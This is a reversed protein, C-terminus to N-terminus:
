LTNDSWNMPYARAALAAGVLGGQADPQGIVIRDRFFTPNRSSIQYYGMKNLHQHIVSLYREALTQVIGGVMVVRKILPDLTFAQLILQAIPYSAATLLDVALLDNQLLAHAFHEFSPDAVDALSSRRWEDPRASKLWVLLQEIGRGSCFANLHDRGGCACELHVVQDRFAMTIPVHGIEGQIGYVDDLPICRQATDFLRYGVGTSLTLLLVHGTHMYSQDQIYYLLEATIDNVIIWPIASEQQQLAELLAFGQDQPGWLPGSNYILGTYHNLCAGFAIGVSSSKKIRGVKQLRRTEQVIYDVCASHLHESTFAANNLYNISPTRSFHHLRNDYTVIASRSWTGGIDFAICGQV